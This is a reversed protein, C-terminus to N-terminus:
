ERNWEVVTQHEGPTELDGDTYFDWRLCLNGASIYRRGSSARDPWVIFTRYFLCQSVPDFGFLCVADAAGSCYVTRYMVTGDALPVSLNGGYYLCNM